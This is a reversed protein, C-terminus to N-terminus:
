FEMVETVKGLGGIISVTTEPEVNEIKLLQEGVKGMNGVTIDGMIVMTGEGEKWLAEITGYDIDPINLDKINSGPIKLTSQTIVESPKKKTIAFIVGGAVVTLAGIALEKKHEKVFKKIKSM